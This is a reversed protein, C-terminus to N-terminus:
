PITVEKLLIKILNDSNINDADAEYSTIIRHRLIDPALTQIENPSVYDKGRLYALAQSAVKLAISARPSAGCTVYNKGKYFKNERTAQVLSVIYRDIKPDTYISDVSNKIESLQQLSLVQKVQPKKHDHKNVLDLIGLEDEFSPYELVIKMLFRDLQAEPLPYTGEQELPNQTALVMFPKPLEYTNEGISVEREQMSQLLASQVKAPARNIEDALFFNTFVPGKRTIFEGTQPRYIETGVIDSPLLDPTFQVRQMQAGIASSLVALTRTKALGPVGELLIHGECILAVCLKEILDSYGIIHQNIENKLEELKNNEM